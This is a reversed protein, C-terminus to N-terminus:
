KINPPHEHFFKTKLARWEFDIKKIMKKYKNNIEPKSIESLIATPSFLISTDIGKKTIGIKNKILLPNMLTLKIKLANIPPKNSEIIRENILKDILPVM